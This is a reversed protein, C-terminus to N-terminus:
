LLQQSAISTLSRSTKKRLRRIAAAIGVNLFASFVFLPLDYYATLASFLGLREAIVPLIYFWPLTLMATPLFSVGHDDKLLLGFIFAAAVSFLYICCVIALLRSHPANM